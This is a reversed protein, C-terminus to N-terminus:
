PQAGAPSRSSRPLAPRPCGRAVPFRRSAPRRRGTVSTQSLPAPQDEAAGDRDILVEHEADGLRDFVGGVGLYAERGVPDDRAVAQGVIELVEEDQVLADDPLDVALEVLDTVVVDGFQVEDLAFARLGLDDLDLFAAPDAEGVLVPHGRKDGAVPLREGRDRAVDGGGVDVLGLRAQGDHGDRGAGGLSTVVCSKAPAL